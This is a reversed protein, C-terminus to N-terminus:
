RNVYVGKIPSYGLIESLKMSAQKLLTIKRISEFYQTENNMQNTLDEGIKKIKVGTPEVHFM